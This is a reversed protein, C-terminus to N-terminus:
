LQRLLLDAVLDVLWNPQLCKSIKPFFEDFPRKKENRWSKMQRFIRIFTLTEDAASNVYNVWNRKVCHEQYSERLRSEFNQDSNKYQIAKLAFEHYKILIYQVIILFATILLVSMCCPDFPAPLVPHPYHTGGPRSLTLQDALNQPPPPQGGQRGGQQM